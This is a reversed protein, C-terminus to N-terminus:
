RVLYAARSPECFYDSRRQLALASENHTTHTHTHPTHTNSIASQMPRRLHPPQVCNSGVSARRAKGHQSSGAILATKSIARTIGLSMSTRAELEHAISLSLGSENVRSRKELAERVHRDHALDEVLGRAALRELKARSRDHVAM